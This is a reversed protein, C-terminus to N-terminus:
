INVPSTSSTPTTSRTSVTGPPRRIRIAHSRTTAIRADPVAEGHAAATQRRDLDRGRAEGHVGHRRQRASHDAAPGRTLADAELTRQPEILPEAAVEHPTVDIAHALHERDSRLALRRTVSAIGRSV